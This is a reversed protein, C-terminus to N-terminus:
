RKMRQEKVVDGERIPKLPHNHHFPSLIPLENAATNEVSESGIELAQKHISIYIYVCVFLAIKGTM